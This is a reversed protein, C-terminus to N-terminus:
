EYRQLKTNNIVETQNKDKTNENERAKYGKVYGGLHGGYAAVIHTLALAVVCVIEQDSM